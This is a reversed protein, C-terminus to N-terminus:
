NIVQEDKKRGRHTVFFGLESFQNGTAQLSVSGSLLTIVYLSVPLAQAPIDNGIFIVRQDIPISTTQPIGAIGYKIRFVPGSYNDQRILSSRNAINCSVDQPWLKRKFM